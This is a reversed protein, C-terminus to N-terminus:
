FDLVIDGGSRRNRRRGSYGTSIMVDCKDPNQFCYYWKIGQMILGIIVILIIAPILIWVWWPIGNNTSTQKSM